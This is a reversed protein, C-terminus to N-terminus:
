FACTVEARGRIGDQTQVVTTGLSIGYLTTEQVEARYRRGQAGSGPLPSYGPLLGVRTVMLAPVILPWGVRNSCARRTALAADRAAVRQDGSFSNVSDSVFVRPIAWGIILLLAFVLTVWAARKM